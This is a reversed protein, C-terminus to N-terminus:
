LKGNNLICNKYEPTDIEYGRFNVISKKCKSGYILNLRLFELENQDINHSEIIKKQKAIQLNQDNILSQIEYLQRKLTENENSLKNRLEDNIDKEAILATVKEMLQISNTDSNNSSNQDTSTSYNESQATLNPKDFSVLSVYQLQSFDSFFEVNMNEVSTNEIKKIKGIPIGSKILGATGSTYVISNSEIKKYHDKKLFEIKALEGGTGSVIAQLNNPSISIPIKSNIDSLLLVRSTTYNVDIIKGVLYNQDLVVMGNLVGDKSGKNLVISKLYPSDNDIIIKAFILESSVLYDDLQERLKQNEFNLIAYSLDQSKYENLQKEYESVKSHVAIHYEFEKKTYELIKEPTSIVYSGRFIVENIGSKILKIIRFDYNSLILIFISLFILSLLSFKQKTEKKLFASRIAIVFDDRSVSM